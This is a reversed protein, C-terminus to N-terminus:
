QEKIEARKVEVDEGDFEGRERIDDADLGKIYWMARAPNRAQVTVYYTQTIEVQVQYPTAVITEKLTHAPCTQTGIRGLSPPLLNNM